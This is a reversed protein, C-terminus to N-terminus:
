AAITGAHGDMGAAKAIHDVIHRNVEAAHTIPGMHGAGAITILRASPIADALAEAAVRTPPPAHEGRLVLVPFRFDRYASLPTSEDLLARFDLPAKPLWRTLATRIDPRLANWAGPGNWYDVFHQAASAYDGTVVGEATARVVGLIENRAQDGAEGLGALLYFASPEYLTLSAIRHSRELAVRLAVGGGYSHGVLHVKGDIADILAITAAAEDALTFAHKGCWPGASETGFHEPARLDFDAALAAGLQRWQGAGAGSCHLAIVLGRSTM